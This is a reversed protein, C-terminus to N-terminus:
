MSMQFTSSAPTSNADFEALSGASRSSRQQRKKQMSEIRQKYALSRLESQRPSSVPNSPDRIEEPPDRIEETGKRVNQAATTKHEFRQKYIFVHGKSAPSPAGGHDHGQDNEPRDRVERGRNDKSYRNFKSEPLRSEPRPSPFTTIRQYEKDNRCEHKHKCVEEKGGFVAFTKVKTSNANSEAGGTALSSRSENRSVSEIDQKFRTQKKGESMTRRTRTNQSSGRAQSEDPSDFEQQCTPLINNGQSAPACPTTERERWNYEVDSQSVRTKVDEINEIHIETSPDDGPDELEFQAMIIEGHQEEQQSKKVSVIKVRAPIGYMELLQKVQEIDDVHSDDVFSESLASDSRPCFGRAKEEPPDIDDLHSDDVFSESLASDSRPCFGGAKEEPPDRAVRQSASSRSETGSTRVTSTERTDEMISQKSPTTPHQPCEKKEIEQMEQTSKEEKEMLDMSIALERQWYNAVDVEDEPDSPRKLGQLQGTIETPATIETPPPPTTLLPQILRHESRVVELERRVTEMEERLWLAEAEYSEKELQLTDMASQQDIRSKQLSHFTTQQKGLTRRYQHNQSSVAKLTQQQQHVVDRMAVLARFKASDDPESGSSTTSPSAARIPNCQNSNSPELAEMVREADSPVETLSPMSSSANSPRSFSFSSAKQSSSVKKSSRRNKVFSRNHKNRKFIEQADDELLKEPHKQDQSKINISPTQSTTSDAGMSAGDIRSLDLPEYRFKATRPTLLLCSRDQSKTSEIGFDAFSSDSATSLGGSSYSGSSTSSYSGSSTPSLQRSAANTKKSKSLLKTFVGQGCMPPTRDEQMMEQKM